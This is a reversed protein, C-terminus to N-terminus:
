ILDISPKTELTECSSIVVAIFALAFKCESVTWWGFQFSSGMSIYRKVAMNSEVHGGRMPKDVWPMKLNPDGAKDLKPM